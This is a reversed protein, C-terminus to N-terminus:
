DPLSASEMTSRLSSSFSISPSPEFLLRLPSSSPPSQTEPPKQSTNKPQTSEKCGVLFFLTLLWNFASMSYPQLEATLPQPNPGGYVVSCGIWMLLMGSDPFPLPSDSPPSIPDRFLSHQFPSVRWRHPHPKKPPNTQIYYPASFFISRGRRRPLAM